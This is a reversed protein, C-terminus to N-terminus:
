IRQMMQWFAAYTIIADFHVYLGRCITCINNNTAEIIINYHFYDSM